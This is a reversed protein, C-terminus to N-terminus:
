NSNSGGSQSGGEMVSSPGTNTTPQIITFLRDLRNQFSEEQAAILNQIYENDINNAPAPAVRRRPEEYMQSFHYSSDDDSDEEESPLDNINCEQQKRHSDSREGSTPFSSTNKFMSTTRTFSPPEWTSFGAHTLGFKNGKKLTPM